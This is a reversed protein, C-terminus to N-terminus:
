GTRCRSRPLCKSHNGTRHLRSRETTEANAKRRNEVTTAKEQHAKDAWGVVQWGDPTEDLLGAEVLLKLREDAEERSYLLLALARRPFEGDTLYRNGYALVEVYTTFAREPLGQVFLTAILNDDLRTWTM